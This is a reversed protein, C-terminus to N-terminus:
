ISFQVYGIDDSSYLKIQSMSDSKQKAKEFQGFKAYANIIAMYVHKTVQVNASQLEEYYKIIGEECECYSILHSFTMSDPNVNAQNMKKLVRLGGAINETCWDIALLLALVARARREKSGGDMSLCLCFVYYWVAVVLEGPLLVLSWRTSSGEMAWRKRGENSCM